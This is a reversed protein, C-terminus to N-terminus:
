KQTDWWSVVYKGGKPDIRIGKFGKMQLKMAFEHAASPDGYGKEKRALKAEPLRNLVEEALSM